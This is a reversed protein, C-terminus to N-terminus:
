LVVVVVGVHGAGVEALAVELAMATAAAFHHGGLRSREFELALSPFLVSLSRAADVTPVHEVVLLVSASLAVVGGVGDPGANVPDAKHPAGVAHEVVAHGVRFAVVRVRARAVGALFTEAKAPRGQQTQRHQRGTQAAVRRQVQAVAAAHGATAASSLVLSDASGGARGSCDRFVGRPVSASLLAPASLVSAARNSSKSDKVERDRRTGSFLQHM